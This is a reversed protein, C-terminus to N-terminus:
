ETDRLKERVMQARVFDRRNNDMERGYYKQLHAPQSLLLIENIMAIDLFDIIQMAHGLRVASLLNMVEDSTLVRAHKLIGYARWIKDEIMDQAENILRQRAGAEAEIIEGTARSIQDIIDKESVGLTNQNSVQFLNGLVDSGEGYFGRVVLGSRTISSVVKDIERTLVLGPLHILVSARMGTGVNTPCATLYGFDPDYDFEIYHGIEAEYKAALDYAGQPDLGAALAQVRLHDEENIMVSLRESEGILLAKSSGGNLFVPSILHREVLFDRDLDNLDAAKLYKGASLLSSRTQTSDFYSVVRKKTESDATTPYRCGAVNRAFRVRTSLVVLAENGQGSLWAAPSKAMEEFMTSM